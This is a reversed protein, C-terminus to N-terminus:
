QESMGLTGRKDDENRDDEWEDAAVMDGVIM